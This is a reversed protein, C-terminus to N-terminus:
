NRNRRRALIALGFGMLLGSGPEPIVLLFSQRIVGVRGGVDRFADGLVTRGDRSVDWLLASEFDWDPLDLGLADLLVTLTQAGGERTWVTAKFRFSTSANALEGIVTSGDGSIAKVTGREPNRFDVLVWHDDAGTNDLVALVPARDIPDSEPDLIINGVGLVRSGDDSIGYIGDIRSGATDTLQEPSDPTAWRAGRIPYNFSITGTVNQYDNGYVVGHNTIGVVNTGARDSPVRIPFNTLSQMGSAETWRWASRATFFLGEDNLEHRNTHGTISLGDPSFYASSDRAVFDTPAGLAIPALDEQLIYLQEPGGITLAGGAIFRSGDASVDYLRFPPEDADGALLTAGSTRNWVVPGAVFDDPANFRFQHFGIATSGDASIRTYQTSELLSGYFHSELGILAPQAGSPSANLLTIGVLSLLLFQLIRSRVSIM